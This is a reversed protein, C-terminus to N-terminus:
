DLRPTNRNGIMGEGILEKRLKQGPGAKKFERRRDTYLQM